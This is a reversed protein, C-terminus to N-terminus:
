HTTAAFLISGLLRSAITHCSDEAVQLRPLWTVRAYPDNRGRRAM